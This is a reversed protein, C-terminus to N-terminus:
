RTLRPRKTTVRGAQGWRGVGGWRGVQLYQLPNLCQGFMFGQMLVHTSREKSVNAELLQLVDAVHPGPEVTAAGWGSAAALECQLQQRESLLGQGPPPPPPLGLPLGLPSCCPPPM